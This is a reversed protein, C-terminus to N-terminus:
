RCNTHSRKEISFSCLASDKYIVVSVRNQDTGLEVHTISNAFDKACVALEDRAPTRRSETRSM